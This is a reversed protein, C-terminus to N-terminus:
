INSQLAFFDIRMIAFPSRERKREKDEMHIPLVSCSFFWLLLFILWLTRNPHMINLLFHNNTCKFFENRKHAHQLRHYLKRVEISASFSYVLAHAIQHNHTHSLSIWNLYCFRIWFLVRVIFHTLFEHVWTNNVVLVFACCVWFASFIFNGPM